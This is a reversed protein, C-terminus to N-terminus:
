TGQDEGAAAAAILLRTITLSSKVAQASQGAAQVISVSRLGSSAMPQLVKAALGEVKGLATAATQLEAEIEALVPADLGQAERQFEAQQALLAARRVDATETEPAPTTPM